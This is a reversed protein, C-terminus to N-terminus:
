KEAMLVQLAHLKETLQRKWVLSSESNSVEKQLAHEDINLISQVTPPMSSRRPSNLAYSRRRSNPVHPSSSGHRLMVAVFHLQPESVGNDTLQLVKISECKDLVEALALTGEDGIQNNSLWLEQLKKKKRKKLLATALAKAGVVGIQNAEMKLIQDPLHQAVASCGEDGIQNLSIDLYQLNPPLNGALKWAGDRGINNEALDLHRLSSPLLPALVEVGFHDLHCQRITLHTLTTWGNALALVGRPGLKPQNILSLKLLLSWDIELLVFM